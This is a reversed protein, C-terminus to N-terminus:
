EAPCVAAAQRGDKAFRVLLAVEGLAGASAVAYQEVLEAVLPARMREHDLLNQDGGM